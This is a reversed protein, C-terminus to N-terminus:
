FERRCIPHNHFNNLRNLENPVFNFSLIRDEFDYLPITAGKNCCCTLLFYLLFIPLRAVIFIPHQLLYVLLYVDLRSTDPEDQLGLVFKDEGWDDKKQQIIYITYGFIGGKILWKILTWPTFCRDRCPKVLCCYCFLFNFADFICLGFTVCRTKALFRLNILINNYFLNWLVLVMCVATFIICMRDNSEVVAQETIKDIFYFASRFLLCTWVILFTLDAYKFIYFLGLTAQRM